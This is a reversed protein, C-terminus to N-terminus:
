PHEHGHHSHLPSARDPQLVFVAEPAGTLEDLLAPSHTSFVVTLDRQRAIGRAVEVLRRLAYPHLGTEPEDIAVVGGPDAGALACLSVLMSLVGNAVHSADTATDGKWVRLVLTQGAQQFDLDEVVGPFAARLGELVLEYRYRDPRSQHWARLMTFANTGNSHLHATQSAQSGQRLAPLDYDYFVTLSRFFAAMVREADGNRDADIIARLALREDGSLKEGRHDFRSGVRRYLTEGDETLTEGTQGQGLPSFFVIEWKLSGLEVAISVSGDGEPQHSALDATGGLVQALATAPGRDYLARLLKLVLLLTTKGSGNEGVLMSVPEPAFDVQRLARLNRVRLTFPM